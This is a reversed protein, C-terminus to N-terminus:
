CTKSLRVKPLKIPTPMSNWRTARQRMEASKCCHRSRFANNRHTSFSPHGTSRHTFIRISSCKQFHGQIGFFLHPCYLIRIKGPHFIGDTQQGSRYRVHQRKASSRSYQGFAVPEKTTQDILKGSITGTGSQPPTQAKASLVAVLLFPLLYFIKKM